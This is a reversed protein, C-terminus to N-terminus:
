KQISKSISTMPLHMLSKLPKWGCKWPSSLASYWSIKWDTKKPLQLAFNAISCRSGSSMCHRQWESPMIFLASLHLSAGLHSVLFNFFSTQLNKTTDHQQQVEVAAHVACTVISVQKFKPAPLDMMTLSVGSSISGKSIVPISVIQHELASRSCM